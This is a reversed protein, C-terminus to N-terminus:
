SVNSVLWREINGFMLWSGIDDSLIYDSNSFDDIDKVAEVALKLEELIPVKKEIVTEENDTDDDEHTVPQKIDLETASEAKGMQAEKYISSLM